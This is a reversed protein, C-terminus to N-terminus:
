LVAKRTFGEAGTGPLSGPRQPQKLRAAEEAAFRADNAALKEATAKRSAAQQVDMAAEEEPTPPGSAARAEANVKDLHAMAAKHREKYILELRLDARRKALEADLMADVEREIEADTKM